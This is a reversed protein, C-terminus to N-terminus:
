SSMYVDQRAAETLVGIFAYVYGVEVLVESFNSLYIKM